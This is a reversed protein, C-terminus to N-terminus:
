RPGVEDNVGPWDWYRLSLPLDALPHEFGMASQVEGPTYIRQMRHSGRATFVQEDHKWSAWCDHHAWLRRGVRHVPREPDASPLIGSCCFVCDAVFNCLGTITAPDTM